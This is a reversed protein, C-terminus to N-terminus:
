HLGRGFGCSLLILNNVFNKPRKLKDSREFVTTHNLVVMEKASSEKQEIWLGSAVWLQKM